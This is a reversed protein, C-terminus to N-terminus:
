GELANHYAFCHVRSMFTIKFLLSFKKALTLIDHEAHRFRM